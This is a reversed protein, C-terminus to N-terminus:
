FIFWQLGELASKLARAMDRSVIGLEVADIVVMAYFTAQIM